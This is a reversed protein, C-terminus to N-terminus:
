RTNNVKRGYNNLVLVLDSGSVRTTIEGGGYSGNNAMAFLNAQQAQTLLMEGGNARILNNDGTPTGSVVGGTAFKPLSAFLAEVAIIGVGALALGLLGKSSGAAIQAAIAQALLANIMQRIGDLTSMVLSKMSVEGGEAMTIFADGLRGVANGALNALKQQKELETNIKALEEAKVNVNREGAGEVLTNSGSTALSNGYGKSTMPTINKGRFQENYAQELAIKKSLELQDVLNQKQLILTSLRQTEATDGADIANVLDVNLQTIETQLKAISSLKAEKEEQKKVVKKEGDEEDVVGQNLKAQKVQIKATTQDYSAAENNLNVWAKAMEDYDKGNLNGGFRNLQSALEKVNPTTNQIEKNLKVIEEKEAKTKEIAVPVGGAGSYVKVANLENRRKIKDNYEDAQKAIDKNNERITLLQKLQNVGLNSVAAKNKFVSNMNDNAIGVRADASQKELRLIEYGAAIREKDSKTADKQVIKLKAIIAANGSEIIGIARTRDEINDMEAVYDKGAQIAKEMNDLLNSFDMNAISTTLVKIGNDLGGLTQEWADSLTDNSAIIAKGAEMAGYMGGLAGAIPALAKMIGGFSSAGKDGFSKTKNGAKDLNGLFDSADLKLLTLLDYKAM